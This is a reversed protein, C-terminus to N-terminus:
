SRASGRGALADAEREVAIAVRRLFRGASGDDLELAEVAFPPPRLPTAAGLPTPAFTAPLVGDDGVHRRCVYGDQELAELM